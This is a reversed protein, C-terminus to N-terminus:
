ERDEGVEVGPLTVRFTTGFEGTAAVSVAGHHAKVIRQVLFLGLGTGQSTRTMEDGSRYFRDFILPIEDIPIGQGNDSVEVVASHGDAHLTVRIEAPDGGYKLANELLNSVAITMAEPDIEASLDSEIETEVRAGAAAAGPQFDLVAKEVVASLDGLGPSLGLTGGDYRTAQLVKQVLRDLRDTDALANGVFRESTEKDARGKVVTELAVRIAAIPSRLEHTIAALFNRHQRELIVERRVTRWLLGMLVLLLVAFFGGESVMMVIRRRYEELLGNWAEETPRVVWGDRHGELAVAPHSGDGVSAVVIELQDPLPPENASGRATAEAAWTRASRDLLARELDLRDRAQGTAFIIWWTLQANVVVMVLAAIALHRGTVSGRKRM